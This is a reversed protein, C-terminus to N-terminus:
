PTGSRRGRCRYWVVGWRFLTIHLITSGEVRLTIMMKRETMTAPNRQLIHAAFVDSEGQPWAIAVM